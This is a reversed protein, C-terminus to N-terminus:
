RSGFIASGVRVLTAGEEIAIQYDGSMGMSIEAFRPDAAFYRSKIRDFLAKLSVFEARVQDLNETNSAMGMLGYIAINQMDKYSNSGLLEDIETVELGFKTEEKAIYVQLLCPIVRNNKVGEKNIVELL